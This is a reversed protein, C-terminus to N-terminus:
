NTSFSLKLQNIKIPAHGLNSIFLSISDGVQLKNKIRCSFYADEWTNPFEDFFTFSTKHKKGLKNNLKMGKWLVNDTKRNIVLIMAHHRYIDGHYNPINFMGSAKIWSSNIDEPTVVYKINIPPYDQDKDPMTYKGMSDSYITAGISDKFQLEAATRMPMNADTLQTRDIDAVILDTYSPQAKFLLRFNYKLNSEDSWLNNQARHYTLMLNVHTFLIIVITSIFKLVRNQRWIFTLCAALPIALVPYINVMPRSGFGNIYNFCWWSYTIILYLPLSLWIYWRLPKIYNTLICGALAFIMIPTYALWGNNGGFLGQNLHPHKFNFHQNKYSDILWSGGIIKWYLLQVFIITLFFCAAVLIKNKNILIFDLKTKISAKNYVNFLFPIGLCFFDTARSVIILGCALAIGIFYFLKAQQHVLITLYIVVAYLTFIIIHVMGTQICAFWFFNTGILIICTTWLAINEEFFYKLSKFLLYLGLLAYCLTSLRVAWMYPSSFGNAEQGSIKCYLHAIAFFPLELLAVAYNYQIIYNGTKGQVFERTTGRAYDLVVADINQNTPLYEISDLNHHIFTAPLYYYYGLSDGYFPTKSTGWFYYFFSSILVTIALIWKMISTNFM